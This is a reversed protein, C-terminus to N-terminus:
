IKRNELFSYYCGNGIILHDIIEIGIIKGVEVLRSTLMIDAQSPNSDGSPHNHLLIVTHANRNIAIRFVDRPHVITKDITGSSVEEIYELEKKTNLLAIRFVETNLCRMEEMVINVLDMPSHIKVMSFVNRMATRKGLEVAALIMSAKATGVGEVSILDELSASALFGLGDCIDGSNERSIIQKSNLIRQSVMVANERKSGTRIILALLEANTLSDIGLKLLKEQPRDCIPLDNIMYNKDCKSNSSDM